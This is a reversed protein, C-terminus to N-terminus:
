ECGRIMEPKKLHNVIVKLLEEAESKTLNNDREVKIKITLIFEIM